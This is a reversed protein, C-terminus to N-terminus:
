LKTLLFLTHYGHNYKQFATMLNDYMILLYLYNIHCISDQIHLSQRFRYTIENKELVDGETNLFSPAHPQYGAIACALTGEKINDASIFIIIGSFYDETFVQAYAIQGLM